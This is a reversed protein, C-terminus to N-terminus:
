IITGPQSTGFTAVSFSTTNLAYESGLENGPLGHDLADDLAKNFSETAKQSTNSSHFTTPAPFAPGNFLGAHVYSALSLSMYLWAQKIFAKM